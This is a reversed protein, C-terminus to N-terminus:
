PHWAGLAHSPSPTDLFWRLKYALKYSYLTVCLEVNVPGMRVMLKVMEFYKLCHFPGVVALGFYLLEGNHVQVRTVSSTFLSEDVSDIPLETNPWLKEPHKWKLWLWRLRDSWTQSASGV